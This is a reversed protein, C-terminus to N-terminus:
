ERLRTPTRRRQKHFEFDGGGHPTQLVLNVGFESRDLHWGLGDSEDYRNYYAASYPCASAHLQDLGACIRILERLNPDEYVRRLSSGATSISSANAARKFNAVSTAEEQYVNHSDVSRFRIHAIRLFPSQRQLFSPHPVRTLIARFTFNM